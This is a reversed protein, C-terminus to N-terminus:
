GRLYAAAAGQANSGADAAEGKGAACEVARGTGLHSGGAAGAASAGAAAGLCVDALSFFLVGARRVQNQKFQEKQQKIKRLEEKEELIDLELAEEETLAARPKAKLRALRVEESEEVEGAGEIVSDEPAPPLAKDAHRATTVSAGELVAIRAELADARALLQQRLQQLEARLSALESMSTVL